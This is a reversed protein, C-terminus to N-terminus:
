FSIELKRGTHKSTALLVPVINLVGTKIIESFDNYKREELRYCSVEAETSPNHPESYLNLVFKKHSFIDTLTHTHTHTRMCMQINPTCHFSLPVSTLVFFFHNHPM